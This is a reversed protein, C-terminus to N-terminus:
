LCLMLSVRYTYRMKDVIENSCQKGKNEGKIKRRGELCGGGGGPPVGKRRLKTCLFSLLLFTLGLCPRSRHSLSGVSESFMYLFSYRNTSQHGEM